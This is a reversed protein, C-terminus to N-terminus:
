QKGSVRLTVTAGPAVQAGAAPTQELVQGNPATSTSDYAVAGVALGLQELTSKAESLDRGVVDPMSLEAPGASLVLDVATGVPVVQGVGPQTSIVTGRAHDDAHETVRGPALGVKQLAGEAQARTLGILKPISSREQGASVDLSVRDGRPLRAGPQPNQSLVTSRPAEGSVRTEGLSAKLGSDSLRRAADDYTLGVVSPVSVADASSGPPFLVFAVFLWAGVFGALATWALRKLMSTATRARYPDDPPLSDVVDPETM